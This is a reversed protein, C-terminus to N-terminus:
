CKCTKGIFRVVACGDGTGLVEVECGTMKTYYEVVRTDCTSVLVEM